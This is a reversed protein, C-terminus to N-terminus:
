LNTEGILHEPLARSLRASFSLALVLGRIAPDALQQLIQIQLFAHDLRPETLRGFDFCDAQVCDTGSRPLAPDVNCGRAITILSTSGASGRM